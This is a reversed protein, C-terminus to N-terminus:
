SLVAPLRAEVAWWGEEVAPEGTVLGAGRLEAVVAPGRPAIIGSAVLVGGPVLLRALDGALEIIVEALINAVVVAGPKAVQASSALHAHCRDAVGNLAFNETATAVAVSDVDVAEVERAGLMAAAIALIGSGTGVDIVRKGRCAPALRELAALCLRTTAHQGTGFAQRPDLVIVRDGPEPEFPEWSPRVVLHKGIRQPHWFAKWSHAWDEEDVWRSSVRAFALEPLYGALAHLRRALEALPGQGDETPQYGKVTVEGSAPGSPGHEDLIVGQCGMALLTEAAAEGALPPVGVELELYKM